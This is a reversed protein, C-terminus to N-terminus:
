LYRTVRRRFSDITDFLQLVRESWQFPTVVVLSDLRKTERELVDLQRLLAKQEKKTM